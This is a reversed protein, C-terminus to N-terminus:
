YAFYVEADGIAVEYYLDLARFVSGCSWSSFRLKEACTDNNRLM